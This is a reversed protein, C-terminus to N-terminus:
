RCFRIPSLFPCLDGSRVAFQRPFDPSVQGQTETTNGDRYRLAFSVILGDKAARQLTAKRKSATSVLWGRVFGDDIPIVAGECLDSLDTALLEVVRVCDEVSELRRPAVAEAWKQISQHRIGQGFQTKGHFNKVVRLSFRDHEPNTV